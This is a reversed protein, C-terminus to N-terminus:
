YGVLQTIEGGLNFAINGGTPGEDQYIAFYCNNNRGSGSIHLWSVLKWPKVASFNIDYKEGNSNENSIMNRTREKSSIILIVGKHLKLRQSSNLFSGSLERLKMQNRHSYWSHTLPSLVCVLYIATEFAGLKITNIIATADPIGM